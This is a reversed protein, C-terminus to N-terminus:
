LIHVWYKSSYKWFLWYETSERTSKRLVRKMGSGLAKTRSPFIVFDISLFITHTKEEIKKLLSHTNKYLSEALNKPYTYVIYRTYDGKVRQLSKYWVKLSKKKNANNFLQSSPRELLYKIVTNNHMMSLPLMSTIFRVMVKKTSVTGVCRWILTHM